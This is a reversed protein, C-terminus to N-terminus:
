ISNGKLGGFQKPDLKEGIYMMLWEVVFKELVKSFFSTLSIIRLDDECLPQPIKQLPTGFEQKWPTPWKVAGQKSYSVISNFIRCVPESLEPGFESVLKRPLDGPVGSKPKNAGKIKEYVQHQLIVPVESEGEPNEVKDKVREPLSELSLHPFEKSIESFYEAIKDAAELPSLDEHGPLTFTNIEDIDGPQAGMKKLINYAQSPNTEKLSDINKRLFKHGAKKIIHEFETKLREYRASKGKLRYERMRKRKLKKLESNMFPKDQIGLKTVKQPFVEDLKQTVMKEFIQVQKTPEDELSIDDWTEATIWQGFQRIKSDPLPRSTGTKYVRTPPNCPDTHPVCLPVSHDSPVGQGPVDPQVPPIIIPTSYYAFCNTLCVDLIEQQRTASRVIQKLKLNTNILSSINMKNKDGGCFIACEGYKTTLRQLTGIIHDKLKNRLRSRPPSYFSCLIINKFQAEDHKPKPLAWM